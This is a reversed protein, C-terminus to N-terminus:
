VRVNALRAVSIGIVLQRLGLAGLYGLCQLLAFHVSASSWGNRLKMQPRLATARNSLGRQIKHLQGNTGGAAQTSRPCRDCEPEGNTPPGM